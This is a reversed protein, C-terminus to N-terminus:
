VIDMADNPLLILLFAIVADPSTSTSRFAFGQRLANAVGNFNIRGSTVDTRCCCVTRERGLSPSGECLLRLSLERM